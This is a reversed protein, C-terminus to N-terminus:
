LKISNCCTEPYLKQLMENKLQRSRKFAKMKIRTNRLEKKIQQRSKNRPKSVKRITRAIPTTPIISQLSNVWNILKENSETNIPFATIYDTYHKRCEECPLLLKLNEYFSIVADKTDDNLEVTQAIHKMTYWYHNGWEKQSSM